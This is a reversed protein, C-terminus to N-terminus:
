PTKWGDPGITVHESDPVRVSTVTMGKNLAVDARRAFARRQWPIEWDYVASEAGFTGRVKM